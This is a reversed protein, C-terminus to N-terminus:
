LFLRLCLYDVFCHFFPVMDVKNGVLLVPVQIQSKMSKKRERVVQDKFSEDTYFSNNYVDQKWTGAMEISGQDTLDVVVSFFHVSIRLGADCNSSFCYCPLHHCYHSFVM